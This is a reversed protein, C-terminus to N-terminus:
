AEKVPPWSGSRARGNRVAGAGHADTLETLTGDDISVVRDCLELTSGRHAIVVMTTSSRLDRLTQLVMREALPDLASTPEDLILVAPDGLLARAIGLRQRQGGSLMHAGPGIVTDYGNPMAEIQDHLHARVAAARVAEDSSGSRFFRINDAVTGYIVENDQPVLAVREAWTSPRVRALDTGAALVRGETPQRLGLLLQVLTTKGGGSPGIVGLSEGTTITLDVSRLVPQGPVYSFSVDRLILPTAEVVDIGDRRRPHSELRVIEEEMAEAYPAFEIGNQVSNQLQKAYGVMRVLLLVVPGIAAVDPHGSLMLWGLVAVLVALVGCQYLIPVIPQLRRVSRLAGALPRYDVELRESVAPGVDFASIESGVRETQAAISAFRKGVTEYRVSGRKAAKSMPRLLLGIAVAGFVALLAPLPSIVLAAVSLVAIGCMAAIILSIQQVLREARQAYEGLMAQLYGERTDARASWEAHLYANTFRSYLRVLTRDSVRAASWGLPVSSLALAVVFLAAAAVVSELSIRHPALPGVNIEISQAGEALGVAMRGILYLAATEILASVMAFVSLWLVSVRHPGVTRLGVRLLELISVRGLPAGALARGDEPQGDHPAGPDTLTARM